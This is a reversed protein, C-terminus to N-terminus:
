KKLTLDEFPFLSRARGEGAQGAKSVDIKIRKRVAEVFADLSASQGMEQSLRHDRIVTELNTRSTVQQSITRLRDEIAETVISRVFDQPVSQSQVLILTTAEFVKPAILTYALGGLISALFPIIIWYKRRQAIDLYKTIEHTDM